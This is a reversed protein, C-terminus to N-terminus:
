ITAMGVATGQDHALAKQVDPSNGASGSGRPLGLNAQVKRDIQSISMRLSRLKVHEWESEISNHVM